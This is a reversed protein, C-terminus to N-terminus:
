SPASQPAPAARRDRLLERYLAVTKAAAEDWSYPGAAAAAAGQALREREAPDELVRALTERLGDPDGAPVLAAAGAAAVEPFGGVDALVTPKGFALSIALVGSQDFRETRSYPLVVADARRFYAPLEADSVFRTVFRVRPPAQARLAAVDILPRGVIWLEAGSVGRWAELLVDLGKYPRLLGFFLVVPGNVEALEPALPQAYPLRTLHDFAGHHIVHIKRPDLGRMEILRRRGYESHVVLADAVDYLRRQAWVQGPRPERPLLDHATLVVPRDPLLYRDFWQVDLWQFHVVDAARASRRYRLMDPVHDALKTVRRLRSGAAGRAHRYFPERLVYGEPPPVTGYPFECTILEVDAGARALAVCLGHDYPRTFSSPDVVHVRM